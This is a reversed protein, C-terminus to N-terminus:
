RERSPTGGRDPTPATSVSRAPPAPPSTPTLGWRPDHRYWQHSEAPSDERREEGFRGPQRRCWRPVRSDGSGQCTGEPAAAEMQPQPLLDKGSAKQPPPHQPLAEDRCKPGREPCPSAPDHRGPSDACCPPTIAPLRPDTQRRTEAAAPHPPRSLSVNIRLLSPSGPFHRSRPPPGARRGGGEKGGLAKAWSKCRRSGSPPHPAPGPTSPFHLMVTEAPTAPSREERPPHNGLPAPSQRALDGPAPTGDGHKAVHCKWQGVWIGFAPSLNSSEERQLFFVM